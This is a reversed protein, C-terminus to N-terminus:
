LLEGIVSNSIFYAKKTLKLREAEIEILGLGKLKEIEKRHTEFIDVGFRRKYKTTDIGECLRLGMMMYDAREDQKEDALGLIAGENVMKEYQLVDAPFYYRWGKFYGSASAGLALYDEGLWYLLNHKSQHGEIAFNSLEYQKMGEKEARELIIYYMEELLEDEPIFPIDKALAGDPYIELLYTSLHQFEYAFLKDLTHNLDDIGSHPLGYILDVSINHFGAKSLIALKDGIDEAKHRRGLYQLERDLLSQVGLSIRNVKTEALASAFDEKVQVPNIELSIEADEKLPLGELLGEIQLPSLLSPTGGGFYVSILETDILKLLMEKHKMLLQYYGEIEAKSFPRSYFSCYPCRKLCFPIHYYIGLARGHIDQGM